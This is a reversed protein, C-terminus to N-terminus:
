SNSVVNQLRINHNKCRSIHIYKEYLNGVHSWAKTLCLCSPPKPETEAGHRPRISVLHLSYVDLVAGTAAVAEERMQRYVRRVNWFGCVYRSCIIYKNLNWRTGFSAELEIQAFM